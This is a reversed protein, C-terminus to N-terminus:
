DDRNEEIFSKIDAVKYFTHENPNDPDALIAVRPVRGGRYTNVVAITPVGDFGFDNQVEPNTDINFAYFQINNYEESDSIDHYYDRLNHCMPCGNSYFKVVCTADSNVRGSTIKKLATHTLRLVSM